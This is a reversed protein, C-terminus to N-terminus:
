DTLLLYEIEVAATDAIVYPASAGVDLRFCCFEKKNTTGGRIRILAGEGTGRRVQVFNTADLNKIFLWGGAAADGLNLPEEAAFGVSQRGKQYKTGAWDISGFFDMGGSAGSKSFTLSCRIQIENSM